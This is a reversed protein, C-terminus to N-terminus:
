RPSLANTADPKRGIDAGGPLATGRPLMFKLPCESCNPAKTCHRKALEVILAHYRHLADVDNSLAADVRKNLADYSDQATSWGHREFVRRLYADVPFAPRNLAYLLIADATEPGIGSLALLQARLPKTGIAALRSLDGDVATILFDLLHGLRRAKVSACGAPRLYPELEAPGLAHLARISAAQAGLSDDAPLLHASHLLEVARRVNEWRTNQVLIATVMIELPSHGPWWGGKYGGPALPVDGGRRWWAELAHYSARVLMDAIPAPQIPLTISRTVSAMPFTYGM